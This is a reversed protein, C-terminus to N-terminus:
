GLSVDLYARRRVRARVVIDMRARAAAYSSSEIKPAPRAIDAQHWLSQLIGQSIGCSAVVRFFCESDSIAHREIRNRIEFHHVVLFGAIFFVAATVLTALALTRLLREPPRYSYADEMCFEMTLLPRRRGPIGRSAINRIGPQESGSGFTLCQTEGHRGPIPKGVRTLRDCPQGHRASESPYHGTQERREARGVCHNVGPKHLVIRDEGQM